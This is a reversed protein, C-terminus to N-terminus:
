GTTQKKEIFRLFDSFLGARGGSGWVSGCHPYRWDTMPIRGCSATESNRGSPRALDRPGRLGPVPRLSRIHQDARHRSEPIRTEATVSHPAALGSPIGSLVSRHDRRHDRGGTAPSPPRWGIRQHGSHWEQEPGGLHSHREQPDAPSSADGPRVSTAPTPPSMAPRPAHLSHPRKQGALALPAGAAIRTSTESGSTRSEVAGPEMTFATVVVAAAVLAAAGTVYPRWDQTRTDAVTADEDDHM